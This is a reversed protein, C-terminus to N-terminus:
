DLKDSRSLSSGHGPVKGWESQPKSDYVLVEGALALAHCYVLGYISAAEQGYEYGPENGLNPLMQIIM